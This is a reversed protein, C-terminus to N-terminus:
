TQLLKKERKQIRRKEVIDLVESGIHKEGRLEALEVQKERETFSDRQKRTLSNYCHPCSVGKTYKESQKEEESIPMRCAHCQDYSGKNLSHDVTVRNDFVFCEGQWM